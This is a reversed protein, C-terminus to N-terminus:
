PLSRRPHSSFLRRHRPIFDPLSRTSLHFNQIPTRIRIRRLHKHTLRFLVTPSHRTDLLNIGVIASPLKTRRLRLSFHRINDSQNYLFTSLSNALHHLPFLLTRRSRISFGLRVHISFQSPPLCFTLTLRHLNLLTSLRGLIRTRFHQTLARHPLTRIRDLAHLNVHSLTATISSRLTVHSIPLRKLRCHLTRSSPIM